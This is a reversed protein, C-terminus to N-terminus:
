RRLRYRITEYLVALLVAVGLASRYANEYHHSVARIIMGGAQTTTTTQVMSKFLPLSTIAIASGVFGIAGLTADIALPVLLASLQSLEGRRFMRNAILGVLSGAAAGAVIGLLIVKPTLMAPPVIM